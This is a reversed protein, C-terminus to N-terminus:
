RIRGAGGFPFYVFLAKGRISKLPIPGWVRSDQSDDRNDGLMYISDNPVQLPARFNGAWGSVYPEELRGGNVYIQNHWVWVWEGPLGIVRKIVVEGPKEPGRFTVVEFRQPMRKRYALKSVLIYDGSRLGPRMSPGDVVDSEYVYARLVLAAGVVFAAILYKSLTARWHTTKPPAVASQGAASEAATSAAAPEGLVDPQVDAAPTSPEATEAADNEAPPRRGEEM